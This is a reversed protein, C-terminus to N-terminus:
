IGEESHTHAWRNLRELIGILERGRYTLRYEVRIPVEPFATRVVIGDEELQRLQATLTQASVGVLAAQIESFRRAGEKLEYLVSPKWRGKIVDLANRAGCLSAVPDTPCLDKM